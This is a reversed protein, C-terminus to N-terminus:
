WAGRDMPNELCSYQLPNGNGEGYYYPDKYLYCHSSINLKKLLKSKYISANYTLKSFSIINMKFKKNTKTISKMEIWPPLLKEM